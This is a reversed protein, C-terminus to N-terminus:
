SKEIVFLYERGHISPGKKPQANVEVDKVLVINGDIYQKIKQEWWDFSEIILHANRGDPLTKKARYSAIVLYAAKSFLRNIVKLTEDIMEPEVHELADTSILLDFTGDPLNEFEEVGPDYGTVSIGPYNEAIAKILNGKGCGFDILSTPTYQTLFKDLKGLKKAGAEFMKPNKHLAQLQQKYEDNIITM